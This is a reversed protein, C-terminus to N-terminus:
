STAQTNIRSSLPPSCTQYIFHDCILECEKDLDFFTIYFAYFRTPACRVMQLINVVKQEWTLNPELLDQNRDDVFWDLDPMMEEETKKTIALKAEKKKKADALKLRKRRRRRM